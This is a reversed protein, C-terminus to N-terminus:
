VNELHYDTTWIFLISNEESIDEINLKCIDDTSMVNYPPRRMGKVTTCNPKATNDNYYSQPPDAYIISYKKM